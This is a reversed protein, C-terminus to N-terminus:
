QKRLHHVIVIAICYRDAIRKLATIDDYDAAYMGKNGNETNRVKQLTDIIILRTAPYEKLHHHIQKQLGNGIQGSTVAFYLNDPASETLRYLRDQIRQFSDELCLYLVDCKDTKMGWLPLGQSVKLSLLLMLWSKGIKPAGSLISVGQPLFGDIIFSARQMPTSLLTDADMIMLNESM